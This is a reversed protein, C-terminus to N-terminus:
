RYRNRSSRGMEREAEMTERITDLVAEKINFARAIEDYQWGKKPALTLLSRAMDEETSTLRKRRTRPVGEVFRLNRLRCDRWKGNRFEIMWQGTEWDPCDGCRFTKPILWPVSHRPTQRWKSATRPKPPDGDLRVRVRPYERRNNPWEPKLPRQGKELTDRGDTRYINGNVTAGYKGGTGPIFTVDDGPEDPFEPRYVKRVIDFETSRQHNNRV